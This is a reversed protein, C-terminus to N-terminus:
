NSINQKEVTLSALNKVTKIWSVFDKGFGFKQLIQLLFCHNVFDFAQALTSAVELIDSIM